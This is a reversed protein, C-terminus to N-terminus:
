ALDVTEEATGSADIVATRWAYADALTTYGEYVRWFGAEDLGDFRDGDSPRSAMRKLATAYDTLFTLTLDPYLGGTIFDNFALVDEFPLGGLVSQFVLTSDLFRDCLVVYGAELAPRIATEVLEARSALLLSLRAKEVMNHFHPKHLLGGRIAEGLETGGPERLRVVTRGRNEYRTVLTDAVTSKGSGNSGEVVIFVGASGSM